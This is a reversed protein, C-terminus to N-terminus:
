LHFLYMFLASIALFIVGTVIVFSFGDVRKKSQRAVYEGYNEDKTGRGFPLLFKVARTLVFAIGHWAGENSMWIMLGGALMLFGPLMFADSLLRYMNRLDQALFDNNFLYMGGVLLGLGVASAYKIATVVRKDSV